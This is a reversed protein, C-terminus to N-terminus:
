VEEESPFHYVQKGRRENESEGGYASFFELHRHLNGSLQSTCTYPIFAPQGHLAAAHYAARYASPAHAHPRHWKQLFFFFFSM